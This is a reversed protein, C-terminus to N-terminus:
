DSPICRKALHAIPDSAVMILEDASYLDTIKAQVKAGLASQYLLWAKNDSRTTVLVAKVRAHRARLAENVDLLSRVLARGISQGRFEPLVAIQELELVVETRFGSKEAWVVYGVIDNGCEAVFYRTRPYGNATATIWELSHSQRVFSEQHVAAIKKLDAAIAPRVAIVSEKDIIAM